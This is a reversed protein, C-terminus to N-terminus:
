RTMEMLVRRDLEVRIRLSLDRVADPKLRVIGIDGRRSDEAPRQQILAFM